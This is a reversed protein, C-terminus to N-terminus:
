AANGVNVVLESASPRVSEGGGVRAIGVEEGLVEAVGVDHYRAAESKLEGDVPEVVCATGAPLAAVNLKETAVVPAASALGMTSATCPTGSPAVADSSGELM